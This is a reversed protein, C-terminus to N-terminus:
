VPDASAIPSHDGHSGHADLSAMGETPAPTSHHPTPVKITARTARLFPGDRPVVGGVPM